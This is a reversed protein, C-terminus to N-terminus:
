SWGDPSVGHSELLPDDVRTLGADDIDLVHAFELDAEDSALDVDDGVVLGADADLHVGDRDLVEADLGGAVEDLDVVRLQAPVVEELHEAVEAHAARLGLDAHRDGAVDRQREADDRRAREDRAEAAVGLEVGDRAVDDGVADGAIHRDVGDRAVDVDAASVPVRLALLTEPSTAAVPESRLAVMSVTDPAMSTSVVPSACATESLLTLALAM